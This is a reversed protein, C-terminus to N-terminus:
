QGQSGKAPATVGSTDPGENMRIRRGEGREDLNIVTYGKPPTADFTNAAISKNVSRYYFDFRYIREGLPAFGKGAKNMATKWTVENDWEARRILKLPDAADFYLNMVGATATGFSVSDLGDAKPGAVIFTDEPIAKGFLDSKGLFALLPNGSTRGLAFTSDMEAITPKAKGVAIRTQPTETQPDYMYKVGDSIARIGNGFGGITEFRFKTGGGYWLEQSGSYLFPLSSNARNGIWVTTHFSKLEQYTKVITKLTAEASRDAKVEDQALCIATASCAAFLFLTRMMLLM